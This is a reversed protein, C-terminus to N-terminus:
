LSEMIMEALKKVGSGSSYPKTAGGVKWFDENM